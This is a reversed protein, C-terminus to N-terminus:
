LHIMQFAPLYIGRYVIHYGFQGCYSDKGTQSVIKLIQFEVGDLSPVILPATILSIAKAM